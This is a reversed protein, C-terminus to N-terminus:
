WVWVSPSPRNLIPGTPGPRHHTRSPPYSPRALQTPVHKGCNRHILTKEAVGSRASTERWTLGERTRLAVARRMRERRESRPETARQRRTTAM